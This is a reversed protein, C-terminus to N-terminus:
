STIFELYNVQYKKIKNTNRIMSLMKTMKRSISIPHYSHICNKLIFLKM